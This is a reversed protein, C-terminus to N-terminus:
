QSLDVGYLSEGDDDELNGANYLGRLGSLTSRVAGRNPRPDLYWDDRYRSYYKGYDSAPLTRYCSDYGRRNDCSCPTEPNRVDVTYTHTALERTVPTLLPVTRAPRGTRFPYGYKPYDYTKCTEPLEPYSDRSIREGTKADTVSVVRHPKPSFLHERVESPNSYVTRYEWAPNVRYRHHCEVRYRTVKKCVASGHHSYRSREERPALDCEGLTHDHVEVGVRDLAVHYPVHVYTRSM